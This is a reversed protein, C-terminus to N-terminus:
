KKILQFSELTFESSVLLTYIGSPLDISEINQTENLNVREVLLQGSTSYIEIKYDSLLTQVTIETDIITPFVKVISDNSWNVQRIPSTKSEGAFSNSRILYYNLGPFPAVDAFAYDLPKFSNGGGSVRAIEIFDRGNVSRQVSFYENDIETETSWNLSVEESQKSVSFQSFEVNLGIPLLQANVILTDGNVFDRQISFNEFEPHTIGIVFNGEEVTGSKYEGLANTNVDNIQDCFIRVKANNILQGTQANTVVGEM